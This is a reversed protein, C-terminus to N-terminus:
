KKQYKIKSSQKIKTTEQKKKYGNQQRLQASKKKKGAWRRKLAIFKITTIKNKEVLTSM